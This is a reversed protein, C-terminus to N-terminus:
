PNQVFSLSEPDNSSFERPICTLESASSSSQSSSFKEPINNFATQLCSNHFTQEEADSVTQFLTKKIQFQLHRPLMKTSNYMSLFFQYLADNEEKEPKLRNAMNERWTVDKNKCRKEETHMAREQSLDVNSNVKRKRKTERITEECNENAEDTIIIEAEIVPRDEENMTEDEQEDKTVQNEINNQENSNLIETDTRSSMSRNNMFPLLYEMQKEYAWFKKYVATQESKSKRRRLADRHCHRLSKWQAKAAQTTLNLKEAISNWIEEKLKTKTYSKHNTDYLIPYQQVIKILKEM